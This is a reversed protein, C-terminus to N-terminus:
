LKPLNPLNLNCFYLWTCLEFFPAVFWSITDCSVQLVGCAKCSAVCWVFTFLIYSTKPPIQFTWSWSKLSLIVGSPKIKQQRVGWRKKSYPTPKGFQVTLRYLLLTVTILSPSTHCLLHHSSSPVLSTIFFNDERTETSNAKTLHSQCSNIFIYSVQGEETWWKTHTHTDVHGSCTSLQM